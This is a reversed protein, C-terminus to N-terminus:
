SGPFRGRPFRGGSVADIPCVTAPVLSPMLPAEKLDIFPAQKPERFPAEKPLGRGQGRLGVPPLPPPRAWALGGTHCAWVPGLAVLARGFLPLPRAWALGM